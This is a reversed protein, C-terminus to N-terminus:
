GGKFPFTYYPRLDISFEICRYLLLLYLLVSFGGPRSRYPGLQGGEGGRGPEPM